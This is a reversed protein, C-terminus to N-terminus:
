PDPSHRPLHRPAARRDTIAKEVGGVKHAPRNDMIVIDGPRLEPALMPEVWARVITRNM